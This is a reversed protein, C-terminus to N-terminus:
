STGGEVEQEDPVDDSGRAAVGKLAADSESALLMLDMGADGVAFIGRATKAQGGLGGLLHEGRADIEDRAPIM